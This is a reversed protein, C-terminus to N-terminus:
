ASITITIVVETQPSTFLVSHSWAQEYPPPSLLPTNSTILWWVGTREVLGPALCWEASPYHPGLYGAHLGQTPCDLDDNFWCPQKSWTEVLTHPDTVQRSMIPSLGSNPRCQRFIKTKTQFHQVQWFNPYGKLEVCVTTNQDTVFMILLLKMLLTIVHLILYVNNLITDNNYVKHVKRHQLWGCIRREKETDKEKRRYWRRRGEDSEGGRERRMRM